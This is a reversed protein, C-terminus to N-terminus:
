ANTGGASIEAKWEMGEQQAISSSLRGRHHQSFTKETNQVKKRDGIRGEKRV